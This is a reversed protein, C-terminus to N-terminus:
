LATIDTVIEPFAEQNCHGRDTFSHLSADPFIAHYRQVDEFPVVVDDTSHYLHISSVQKSVGSLDGPLAFDVLSQGEETSGFPASVLFLGKIKQPLTHTALYKTLFIGGMSHGVLVLDSSFHPVLQDFVIEWELYRANAKNPFSPRIVEYADGLAEGLSGKWNKRPNRLEEFDVPNTKLYSIYAEYSPFADAGHVVVVQTKM